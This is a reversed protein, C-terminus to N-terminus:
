QKSDLELQSQMVSLKKMSSEEYAATLGSSKGPPASVSSQVSSSQVSSVSSVTSQQSSVRHMNPVLNWPVQVQKNQMTVSANGVLAGAPLDSLGTWDTRPVPQVPGALVPRVFRDSWNARAKTPCHGDSWRAFVATRASSSSGHEVTLAPLTPQSSKASQADQLASQVQKNLLNSDTEPSQSSASLSAQPQSQAADWNATLDAFPKRTNGDLRVM